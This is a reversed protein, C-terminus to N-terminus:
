GFLYVNIKQNPCEENLLKQVKLAMLQRKNFSLKLPLLRQLQIITVVHSESSSKLM